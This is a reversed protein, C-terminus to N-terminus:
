NRTENKKEGINETTPQRNETSEPRFLSGLASLPTLFSPIRVLTMSVRTEVAFGAARQATM